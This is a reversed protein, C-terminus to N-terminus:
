ETCYRKRNRLLRSCRRASTRRWPKSWHGVRPSLSLSNCTNSPIAERSAMRTTKLRRNNQKDNWSGGYMVVVMASTWKKRIRTLVLVTFDYLQIRLLVIRLEILRYTEWQFNFTNKRTKKEHRRRCVKSRSSNSIIDRDNTASTTSTFVINSRSFSDGGVCWFTGGITLQRSQSWASRCRM